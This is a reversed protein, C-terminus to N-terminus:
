SSLRDIFTRLKKSRSVNKLKQIAKAEIQRIRERTVEFQKGIEELTYDTGLDIGFRMQIVKAERPTLSHLAERMAEKLDDQILKQEPTPNYTDELIDIFDTKEDDQNVSNELSYPEKSIRILKNIKDVSIELKESLWFPEPEKGTSQMYENSLKKIKNLIEILHVPLRIIRSQDALCRTISQRIWWTAYTSFKYGRRYDFKDVARMLGINGEQILDHLQMGRNSYKKAISVSLRLNAEIMEEKGKRMKNEGISMQRQLTKFYILPIGRLKNEIVLINNQIQILEQLKENLKKSYPHNDKVEKKFLNINTENANWIQLLRAKPMGVRECINIIKREQERIDKSISNFIDIFEQTQNPTFKISTILNALNIQKLRFEESTYGKSNLTKLMASYNRKIKKLHQLVTEKIKEMNEQHKILASVKADVEIDEVGLEKLLENEESDENSELEELILDESYSDNDTNNEEEEEEEELIKTNNKTKNTKKANLEENIKIIDNIDEIEENFGDVVEEIKIEGLDIKDLKELIIDVTLPCSSIARVMMLSGEEIKQAISIEEVRNLLSISGMEKLYQKLPDVYYDSEIKTKQTEEEESELSENLAGENLLGESPEEEYVKISLTQCTNIIIQFNDEETQEILFEESIDQHTIFGKEQNLLLLTAIKSKFENDQSNLVQNQKKKAM